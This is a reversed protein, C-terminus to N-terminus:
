GGGDIGAFAALMECESLRALLMSLMSHTLRTRHSCEHLVSIASECTKTTPCWGYLLVVEEV